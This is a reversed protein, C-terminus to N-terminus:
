VDVNAFTQYRILFIRTIKVWKQLPHFNLKSLKPRSSTKLTYLINIQPRPPSKVKKLTTYNHLHYIMQSGPAHWMRSVYVSLPPPTM